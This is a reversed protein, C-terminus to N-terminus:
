QRLATAGEPGLRRSPAYSPSTTLLGQHNEVGAARACQSLHPTLLPSPHPPTLPPSPHPTLLPSPHPPTLPSSPHRSHLHPPPPLPLLSHHSSLPPPPPPSTVKKKGDSGTSRTTRKIQAHSPFFPTPYHHPTYTTPLHHTPPCSTPSLNTGNTTLDRM